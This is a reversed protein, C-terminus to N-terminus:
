RDTEKLGDLNAELLDPEDDRRGELEDPGQKGACATGSVDPARQSDSLERPLSRAEPELEKDLKAGRERHRNPKQVQERNRQEITPMQKKIRDFCGATAREGLPSLLHPESDSQAKDQHQHDKCGVVVDQEEGPRSRPKKIVHRIPLTKFHFHFHPTIRRKGTLRFESRAFTWHSDAPETPTHSRGRSSLPRM